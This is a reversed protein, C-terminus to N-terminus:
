GKVEVGQIPGQELGRAEHDARYLMEGRFVDPWTQLEKDGASYETMEEMAGSVLPHRSCVNGDIM